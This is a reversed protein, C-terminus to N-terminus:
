LSDFVQVAAQQMSTLVHAYVQLTTNVTAHGLRQQVTKIYVGKSLLITAHTHRLTHISRREIGLKDCARHMYRTVYWPSLPKGHQDEFVWVSGPMAKDKRRALMALTAEDLLIIRESSATKTEKEIREKPKTCAVSECVSLCRKKFNVNAWRLGFMEGRRMGTRYALLILDGMWKPRAVAILQEVEEPELIEKRRERKPLGAYSISKAPNESLLGERIAWAFVMEMVLIIKKISARAMGNTFKSPTCSLHKAFAQVDEHTISSIESSGFMPFIYVRLTAAARVGTTYARSTQYEKLWERAAEQFLM